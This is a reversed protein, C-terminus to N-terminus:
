AQPRVLDSVTVGVARALACLTLLAPNSKRREINSIHTPDLGAREACAEQSLGARRRYARLNVALLTRIEASPM